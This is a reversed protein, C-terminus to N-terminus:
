VGPGKELGRSEGLPRLRRVAGTANGSKAYARNLMSGAEM